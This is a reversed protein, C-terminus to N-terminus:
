AAAEWRERGFASWLIGPLLIFFVILLALAAVFDDRGFHIANYVRFMATGNAAPVLIAADLERMGFVFVLAAGGLLSTRLAPQVIGTLRRLPGANALQAAEELHPDLMATAGAGAFIPFCAFRGIYLLVVMSGSAYFLGTAPHNWLAIYGIGFLIAPVALPALVLPELWASARSRQLAHGLVLGPLLSILAAASSYLLSRQLDARGVEVARAFAAGFGAFSWGRPGGGAEWCLRVLPLAATLAVLVFALAFLPWRWAGLALPQPRRFDGDWTALSGRRRLALAPLLVCLTLVLLPLAAAVAKGPTHVSQWSAFIEDAYVNVKSGISTMYDPVAFDNIALVFSLCAASAAAPLVLPLEMRLASRLGGVLLAAEERRADIREFARGSFVAVLPFTGVGLVLIIAGPGRLADFMVVMTMALMVPPVLLPVLGAHRLFRACPVDTRAVLFGFPLGLVFALGASGAGIWCTRVLLSLTRADFIGGLDSGDIRALMWVIPVLGALVLLATCFLVLPRSM